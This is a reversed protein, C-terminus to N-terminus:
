TSAKASSTRSSEEKGTVTHQATARQVPLSSVTSIMISKMLGNEMTLPTSSLPSKGM